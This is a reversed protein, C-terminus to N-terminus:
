FTQDMGGVELYGVPFETQSQGTWLMSEVAATEPGNGYSVARHNLVTNLLPSNAQIFHTGTLVVVRELM